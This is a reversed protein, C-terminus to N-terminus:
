KVIIKVTKQASKLQLNVFYFGKSYSSLDIKSTTNGQNLLQGLNNYITYDYKNESDAKIYINDSTVTPYVVIKNLSIEDDIGM